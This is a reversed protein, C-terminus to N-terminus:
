RRRPVIPLVPPLTGECRLCVGEVGEAVSYDAHHTQSLFSDPSTVLVMVTGADPIEGAVRARSYGHCYDNTTEFSRAYDDDFQGCNKNIVAGCVEPSPALVSQDFSFSGVELMTGGACWVPNPVDDHALLTLPLLALGLAVISKRLM